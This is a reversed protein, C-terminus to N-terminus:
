RATADQEPRVGRTGPPLVIAVARHRCSPPLVIDPEGVTVRRVSARLRFSGVMRPFGALTAMQNSTNITVTTPM